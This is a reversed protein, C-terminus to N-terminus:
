ERNYFFTKLIMDQQKKTFNKIDIDTYDVKINYKHIVQYTDM